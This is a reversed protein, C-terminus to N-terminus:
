HESEHAGRRRNGREQLKRHGWWTPWFGALAPVIYLMHLLSAPMSFIAEPILTWLFVAFLGVSVASSWRELTKGRGGSSLVQTAAFSGAILFLTFLLPGASIGHERELSPKLVTEVAIIAAVSAVVAASDISLHHAIEGLEREGSIRLQEGASQLTAAHREVLSDAYDIDSDLQQSFGQLRGLCSGFIEDQQLSGLIESAAQEQHLSRAIRTAGISSVLAVCNILYIRRNIAVTRRLEKLLSVFHRYDALSANAHALLQQFELAEDSRLEDLDRNLNRQLELLNGARRDLSKRAIALRPREETYRTREYDIKHQALAVVSFDPPDNSYPQWFRRNVMKESEESRPTVLMWLDHSIEASDTFIPRECRWLPGGLDTETKQLNCDAALERIEPSYWEPEVAEEAIAWYVASMGLAANPASFVSNISSSLESWGATFSGVWDSFKTITIQVVLADHYVYALCEHYTGVRSQPYETHAQFVVEFNSLSRGLEAFDIESARPYRSKPVPSLGYSAVFADVQKLILARAPIIDHPDDKRLYVFFFLTPECARHM